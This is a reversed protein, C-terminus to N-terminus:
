REGAVMPIDSVGVALRVLRTVVGSVEVRRAQTDDGRVGLRLAAAARWRRPRGALGFRAIVRQRRQADQRVM